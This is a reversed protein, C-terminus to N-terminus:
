EQPILCHLRSTTKGCRFFLMKAKLEVSEYLLYNKLLFTFPLKMEYLIARKAPLRM